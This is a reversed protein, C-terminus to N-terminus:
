QNIGVTPRNEMTWLYLSGDYLKVDKWGMLESMVFWPGSALHGTNCYSITPKRAVDINKAIKEYTASPYFFKVGGKTALLLEPAFDVANAIKGYTLVDPKKVLGLYFAPQRGDVLQTKKTESAAKVDESSAVLEKHYATAVWNGAESKVPGTVVEQGSLIWAGTGGDLVAVKNSGFVKLEYFLRLAEDVDSVDLGMPAIVIPKDSKVGASQMLKEFDAKEPILNKVKKGNLEREARVNKFPVVLSSPIQGGVSVVTKAGTKKDVEIEPKQKFSEMDSRVEILQVDQRNKVLWDVSVVPGPLEVAVASLSFLASIAGALLYKKMNIGKLFLKSRV